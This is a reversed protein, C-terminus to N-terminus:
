ESGHRNHCPELRSRSKRLTFYWGSALASPIADAFAFDIRCLLKSKRILSRFPVIGAIFDSCGSAIINFGTAGFLWYLSKKTFFQVHSGGEGANASQMCTEQPLLYGSLHSLSAYLHKVHENSLILARLKSAAKTSAESPGYGNPVTVILVGDQKLVARVALLISTPEYVHELVESCIVADFSRGFRQIENASAVEFNLHSINYKNKLSTAHEICDESMDIGLVDDGYSALVASINGNGCGVDLIDIPPGVCFKQINKVVYDLKKFGSSEYLYESYAEYRGYDHKSM